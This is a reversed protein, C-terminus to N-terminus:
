TQDLGRGSENFQKIAEDSLPHNSMEKVTSYPLTLHHAGASFALTAEDTSKLSAALLQTQSEELVAAIDEVLKLGDGMLRTARNVYVALYQAGSERAVLAQAPSYIATPCCPIRSSLESCLKFGLETPPLKVVLQKELLELVRHAEAISSEFTNSTLQYFIPGDCFKRLETFFASPEMDAQALLLPNTTIGQVWGLGLATKAENINASDIFISMFGIDVEKHKAEAGPQTGIKGM